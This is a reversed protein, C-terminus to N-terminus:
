SYNAANETDNDSIEKWKRGFLVFVIQVVLLIAMLITWKDIWIMPLSMDETIIFIIVSAIAMIVSAIRLWKRRKYLEPQKEEDKMAITHEEDQEEDEEKKLKSLLLILGLIVTGVACILNILAWSDESSAKPTKQNEINETERDVSQEHNEQTVTEGQETGTGIDTSGDERSDTNFNSSEESSIAISTVDDNPEPTEGNEEVDIAPPTEIIEQIPNVHVIITKYSTAGQSDTVKYTITYDGAKSTDVNHEYVEVKTTINGDEEDNATVDKLAIEENFADGVTFIKDEASIIPVQNTPTLIPYVHVNITKYSTAGQSDTVKYTITYDGAKSTDVDHEYVEVKTTINGDEEDNATVDKLAIEENFADGVTFIKDEASIIPVQNTPTLIPYVHVNITKYSTAGQSDTVKYTITYDGAKSTDVDHEYVEVKSTLDKDEEDYATVGKLAIEDNFADGVAFIKDEANIVPIHNVIIVNKEFKWTGIFKVNGTAVKTDADYGIFTWTGDTVKVTTDKPQIAKVQSGHPYTKDDKPILSTVEEPLERDETGSVFEYEATYENLKFEWTGIFKVNGTAVKTDEDYGTFTWVGDTVKVTTEKPQIAKVQSGHPYTKDDKPTLAKVEEPLEKDETGSVFEYEATYENQKFEWTGIFKVNSTAVRTDADYGKFTWVGDSVKVTTDKPQIAKIESGHPYTKDDKPTLVKVEEPLERDKTGSVFEYGATYENQKFEWTGIFKVNGTAVKADADYGKFTWIGDSVRVTTEKPQIAKIESGHPYSKDDKPILSTVEEPLEREETGSVFEYEAKYENLKFEWTGIFKVNGTAEKTDADYGKFTWTGDTVKVTTEKPRIAIVESGHPYTKDDKPTLAKVEEPLERDKTGSVFEYGATYENQKFEWTGIFTVGDASVKNNEDWGKFKWVGNEVSVTDKIEPATIMTGEPYKEGKPLKAMVEEPLKTGDSSVFEFTPIYSKQWMIEIPGFQKVSVDFLIGTETKRLNKVKHANAKNIEADLDASEMDVTYDRTLGDYYTVEISDEKNAGEPYPIYVTVDEESTSVWVNGDNMDVLDMYKFERHITGDTDFIGNVAELSKNHLKEMRDSNNLVDNILDDWLLGIRAGDNVPMDKKGNKFFKTGEQVHAHPQASNCGDIRTGTDDDFTGDLANRNSIEASTNKTEEKSVYNYVNKFNDTSLSDANGDSTIDRVNVSGVQSGKAPTRLLCEDDIIVDKDKLEVKPYVYLDYTGVRASSTVEKGDEDLYKWTFPLGQEEINWEQGDVTVKWDRMEDIWHPEPLADGTSTDHNSGLGGEYVTLNNAGVRRYDVYKWTGTIEINEKVQDWKTRDWGEFIWAGDTEEVRTMKLYDDPVTYSENEEVTTAAPLKRLVDIPLEKNSDDSKFQYTIFYEKPPINEETFKWKGVVTINNQIDQIKDPTWGVFTWTGGPVKISTSSPQQLVVDTGALYWKEDIPLTALVSDPLNLETNGSEYTYQVKYRWESIGINYTGRADSLKDGSYATIEEAIGTEHHTSDDGEFVNDTSGSEGRVTFMYKEKNKNVVELDYTGPEQKLDYIHYQGQEDTEVSQVLTHKEDDHEYVNITWGEKDQLNTENSDKVGDRDEDLWIQGKVEGLVAKLGIASGEAWKEVGNGDSDKTNVYYYPKWVDTGSKDTDGSSSGRLYFEYYENMKYPIDEAEIKICNVKSWDEVKDATVYKNQEEKSQLIENRDSPTVDIGYLINFKSANEGKTTVAGQINVDFDFEGESMLRGWNQNQKPIPVYMELKNVSQGSNNNVIIRMDFASDYGVSIYNKLEPDYTGYTDSNEHKAGTSILLDSGANVGYYKQNSDLLGIVTGGNSLGFPDTEQLTYNLNLPEVEKPVEVFLTDKWKVTQGPTDKTTEIDWLITPGLSNYQESSQEILYYSMLAASGNNIRSTDLKYFLEGDKWIESVQVVGDKPSDGVNGVPIEKDNRGDIMKINTIPLPKGNLDKIGAHIYFIPHEVYGTSDSSGTIQTSFHLCDNADVMTNETYYNTIFVSGRNKLSSIFKTEFREGNKPIVKVTNEVDKEEQTLNNGYIYLSYEEAKKISPLTIRLDTFFDKSKDYNKDINYIVYTTDNAKFIDPNVSIWEGDNVKYEIKEIALEGNGTIRKFYIKKVGIDKNNLHYVLQVSESDASGRNGVRVYGLRETIDKGM